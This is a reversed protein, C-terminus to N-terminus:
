NDLNPHELKYKTLVTNLSEYYASLNKLTIEPNKESPITIPMENLYKLLEPYKDKIIITIEMIKSNLDKIIQDFNVKKNTTQEEFVLPIEKQLKNPNQNISDIFKKVQSNFEDSNEMNSLHGALSIIYLSSNKIKEHMTEAAEPPTIKDEKGVLILVPVKIETLKSCTEKREALAHLSKNLSQIETKEIMKRVFSIEKSNKELSETAFLKPILGDALKEVGNEKISEIAIMRNEKGESTDATCNTDSLILASFREPYNEIANLAIYGGMSLGCLISKEIKLADMFLLLDQVFLDISFDIAGLESNGHGRIDYAIVRYNDKVAEVQSNWMSKNLPFGHIFIIVPAKEPGEDNYSVTINNAKININKGTQRM